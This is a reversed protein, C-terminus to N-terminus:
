KRESLIHLMDAAFGELADVRILCEAPCDDVYACVFRLWKPSGIRDRGTRGAADRRVVEGLTYWQSGRNINQEHIKGCKPTHGKILRVGLEAEPSQRNM